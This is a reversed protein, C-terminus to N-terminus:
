LTNKVSHFEDIRTRRETHGPPCGKHCGGLGEVLFRVFTVADRVFFYPFLTSFGPPIHM